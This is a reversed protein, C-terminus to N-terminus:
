WGARGCGRGRGARRPQRVREAEAADSGPPGDMPPPDGVRRPGRHAPGACRCRGARRGGQAPSGRWCPWGRGLIAACLVAYPVPPRRTCPRASVRSPYLPSVPPRIRATPPLPYLHTCPGATAPAGRPPPLYRALHTPPAPPPAHIQRPPHAHARRAPPRAPRPLPACEEFQKQLKDKSCTINMRAMVRAVEDLKLNGSRDTDVSDWLEQGRGVTRRPGDLLPPGCMASPPGRRSRRAGCRRGAGCAYAVRPVCARCARAARWVRCARARVRARARASHVRV